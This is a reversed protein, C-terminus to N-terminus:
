HEVVVGVILRPRLRARACRVTAIEREGASAGSTATMKVTQFAKTLVIFRRPVNEHNPAGRSLTVQFTQSVQAFVPTQPVGPRTFVGRSVPSALPQPIQM